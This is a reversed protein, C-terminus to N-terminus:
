RKEDASMRRIAFALGERLNSKAIISSLDLGLSVVTHAVNPRIGTIIGEAGLLRVANILSLLHAATATDVIEVGTLDLIAFRAGDRTVAALLDDMVRAARGSDVVGMMPVTLVRDWVQIIPTELNRIVERQRDILALQSALQRNNDELATATTRLQAVSASLEQELRIKETVDRATCFMLGRDADPKATWDLWRYVGSKCRYRNQFDVLLAGNQVKEVVAVTAPQDDPHVFDLFPRALLEEYTHELVREFSPSLLKFYGDMTAVAFLDIAMEFFRKYANAEGHVVARDAHAAGDM